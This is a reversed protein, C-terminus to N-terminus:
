PTTYDYVPVEKKPFAPVPIYRDPVLRVLDPRYFADLDVTFDLPQAEETMNPGTEPPGTFQVTRLVHIRNMSEIAELFAMLEAYTEAQLTVTTRVTSANVPVAGTPSAGQVVETTDVGDMFSISTVDVTSLLSAQSLSEVVTDLAPTTPVRTQLRQSDAVDVTKGKKRLLDLKTEELSLDRELSAVTAQEVYYVYGFYAPGALAVILCLAFLTYITSRKM